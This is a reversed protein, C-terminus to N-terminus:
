TLTSSKCSANKRGGGTHSHNSHDGSTCTHRCVEGEGKLPLEPVHSQLLRLHANKARFHKRLGYRWLLFHEPQRLSVVFFVFFGLVKLGFCVFFGVFCVIGRGGGFFCGVM